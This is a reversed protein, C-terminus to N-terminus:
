FIAKYFFQLIEIFIEISIENLGFIKIEVSIGWAFFNHKILKATKVNIPNLVLFYVSLGFFIIKEKNSWGEKIFSLVM